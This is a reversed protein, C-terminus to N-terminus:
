HYKHCCWKSNSCKECGDDSAPSPPRPDNVIDPSPPRPDNVIDLSTSTSPVDDETATAPATSKSRSKHYWLAHQLRGRVSLFKQTCGKTLCSFNKEGGLTVTETEVLYQTGDHGTKKRTFGFKILTTYTSM